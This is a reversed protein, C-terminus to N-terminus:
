DKRCGRQYVSTDLTLKWLCLHYINSTSYIINYQSGNWAGFHSNINDNSTNKNAKIQDRYPSVDFYISKNLHAFGPVLDIFRFQRPLLHIRTGLKNILGVYKAGDFIFLNKMAIIDGRKL